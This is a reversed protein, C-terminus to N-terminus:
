GIIAALIKNKPQNKMNRAKYIVVRINLLIVDRITTLVSKMLQCVFDFVSTMLGFTPIDFIRLPIKVVCILVYLVSSTYQFTNQQGSCTVNELKNKYRQYMKGEGLYIM